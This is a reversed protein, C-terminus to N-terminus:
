LYNKHFIYLMKRQPVSVDVARYNLQWRYDGKRTLVHQTKSICYLGELVSVAPVVTIYRYYPTGM